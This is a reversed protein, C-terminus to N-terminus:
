ELSITYAHKIILLPVLHAGVGVLVDDSQSGSLIESVGIVQAFQDILLEANSGSISGHEAVMSLM